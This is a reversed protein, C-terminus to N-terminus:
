ASATAATVAGPSRNSVPVISMAPTGVVTNTFPGFLRRSTNAVARGRASAVNRTYSSSRHLKASTM